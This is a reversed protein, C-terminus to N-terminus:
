FISWPARGSGGFSSYHSLLGHLPPLTPASDNGHHNLPQRPRRISACQDGCHDSLPRWQRGHRGHHPRFTRQAVRSRGPLGEAEKHRCRRGPWNTTTCPLCSPRLEQTFPPIVEQTFIHQETCLLLSRIWVAQQREGIETSGGSRAFNVICWM